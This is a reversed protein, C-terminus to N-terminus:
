RERIDCIKDNICIVLSTLGCGQMAGYTLIHLTVKKSKKTKKLYCKPLGLPTSWVVGNLINCKTNNWLTVHQVLRIIDRMWTLVVYSRLIVHM